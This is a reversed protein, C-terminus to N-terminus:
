AGLISRIQQLRNAASSYRDDLVIHFFRERADDMERLQRDIERVQEELAERRSVLAARAPTDKRISAQAEQYASAMRELEEINTGLGSPKQVIADNAAPKPKATKAPAPRITAVVDGKRPTPQPPSPAVPASPEKPAEKVHIGFGVFVERFRDSRLMIRGNAQCEKLHGRNILGQVVQRALERECPIEDALTEIVDELMASAQPATFVPRLAVALLALDSLMEQATLRPPTEPVSEVIPQVQQEPLETAMELVEVKEAPHPSKPSLATFIHDIPARPAQEMWYVWATDNKGPQISLRIRQGDILSVHVGKRASSGKTAQLPFLRFCGGIRRSTLEHVLLREAAGFVLERDRPRKIVSEGNVVEVTAECSAKAATASM